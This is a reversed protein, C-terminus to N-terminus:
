LWLLGCTAGDATSCQGVASGLDAVTISGSVEVRGGIPLKADDRAAALTWIWCTWLLIVLVIQRFMAM